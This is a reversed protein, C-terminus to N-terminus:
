IEDWSCNKENPPRDEVDEGAESRGNNNYGGAAVNVAATGTGVESHDQGSGDNTTTAGRCAGCADESLKTPGSGRPGRTSSSSQPDIKGQKQGGCRGEGNLTKGIGKNGTFRRTQKESKLRPQGM